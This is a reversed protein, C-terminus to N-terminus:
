DYYDSDDKRQKEREEETRILYSRQDEFLGDIRRAILIVVIAFVLSLCDALLIPVIAGPGAGFLLAVAWRGLMTGAFATIVYLIGVEIRKRVAEKGMAKFWVLAVLAGCNGVTYMMFQQLTIGVAEGDAAVVGGTALCYAVGSAAAPIAAWGGWRMMVICIMAVMPSLSYLTDPFWSSAALSVVAEAIVTLVTLIALDIGKYQNFSINNNM